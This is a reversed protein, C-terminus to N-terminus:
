GAQACTAPELLEERIEGRLVDELDTLARAVTMGDLVRHDFTLRVDINGRADFKGYHLTTTLPSVLALASAGAGATVSVGFTGFLRARRPGSGNLAWWWFLRRVLRPLATLRVLKRFEGVEGVPQQKRRRLHADIAVLSQSEPKRIKTFFVGNEDDSWQRELTVGAISAPHEYLRPWPFGLCSRRLEPTRAAVIAYAKLFIACWGPRPSATQRAAMVEPLCMRREFPV